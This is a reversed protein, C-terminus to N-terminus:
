FKFYFLPKLRKKITFELHNFFLLSKGYGNLNLWIFFKAKPASSLKKLEVVLEKKEFSSYVDWSLCDAHQCAFNMRSSKVKRLSWGRERYAPEIVEEFIKRLGIIEALKRRQRVKGTDVWVRYYSLIDNSYINGFGAAALSTALHYDEAFDVQASIFGVKLLASRRFMIINAAVRYGRIAAKLAETSSQFGPKRFLKRQRLFDGNQNVEQVAAHAYGAEPYSLMLEVFKKCYDPSLYDDSDLRVIFDGTALHFCSNTNQVIGVNKPQRIVKLFSINNLLEQLIKPTEDTSCDDSVIIEIPMLSQQAASRIAKELYPAQNYTPICISVNM